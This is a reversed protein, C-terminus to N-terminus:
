ERLPLSDGEALVRLYRWMVEACESTEKSLSDLLAPHGQLLEAMREKGVFSSRGTETDIEYFVRENVLGSAAIADGVAGGLKVADPPTATSSAVQGVPQACYFIRGGVRVASAYWGGLRFRKYRMKRCNVYLSTDIRVAYCRKRLYRSLGRNGVAEIRYDAGGMLYRQNKTRKEVTLISVTDGREEVLEELNSYMIQQAACPLCGLLVLIIYLTIRKM